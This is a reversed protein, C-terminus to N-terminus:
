AKDRSRILSIEPSCAQEQSVGIGDFEVEIVDGLKVPCSGGGPTGTWVVDGPRLTMFASIYSVLRKVGFVMLGTNSDQKTVGNVSGARENVADIVHLIKRM